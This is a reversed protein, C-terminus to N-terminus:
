LMKLRSSARVATMVKNESMPLGQVLTGDVVALSLVKLKASVKEAIASPDAPDQKRSRGKSHHIGRDRGGKKKKKSAGDDSSEGDSGCYESVLAAFNITVTAYAIVGAYREFIDSLNVTDSELLVTFKEPDSITMPFQTLEVSTKETPDKSEDAEIIGMRFAEMAPIKVKLEKKSMPSVEKARMAKMAEKQKREIANEISAFTRKPLAAYFYNDGYQETSLDGLSLVYLPGVIFQQDGKQGLRACRYYSDNIGYGTWAAVKRDMIAQKFVSVHTCEDPVDLEVWEEGKLSSYFKRYQSDMRKEDKTMSGSGSSKKSSKDKDRKKKHHDDESSSADSGKTAKSREEDDEEDSSNEEKRKKHKKEKKEAKKEKKSKKDRRDSDSDSRHAAEEVERVSVRSSRGEKSTKSPSGEQKGGEEGLGRESILDKWGDIPSHDGM